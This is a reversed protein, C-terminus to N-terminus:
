RQLRKAEPKLLVGSNLLEWGMRFEAQLPRLEQAKQRLWCRLGM